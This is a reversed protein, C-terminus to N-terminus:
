GSNLPRGLISSQAMLQCSLRCGSSDEMRPMRGTQGNPMVARAQPDDLNSFVKQKGTEVQGASTKKQREERALDGLSRDRICFESGV